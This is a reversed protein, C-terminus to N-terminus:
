KLLIKWVAKNYKIIFIHIMMYISEFLWFWENQNINSKNNEIDVLFHEVGDQM